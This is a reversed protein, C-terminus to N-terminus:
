LDNVLSEEKVTSNAALIAAEDVEEGGTGAEDDIDDAYPAEDEREFDESGDVLAPRDGPPPDEPHDQKEFAPNEEDIYEDKETNNRDPNEKAKKENEIVEEVAKTEAEISTPLSVPESTKDVKVTGAVEVDPNMSQLEQQVEYDEQVKKQRILFLKRDAKCQDIATRFALIDNKYLHIAVPLKQGRVYNTLQGVSMTNITLSGKSVQEDGLSQVGTISHTIFTKYASDFKRIASELLRNKIVSLTEANYTPVNVVIKYNKKQSGRTHGISADVLYLGEVTVAFGKKSM